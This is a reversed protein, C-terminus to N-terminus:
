GLAPAMTLLLCSGGANTLFGVASCSLYQFDRRIFADQSAGFDGWKRAARSTDISLSFKRLMKGNLSSQLRAMVTNIRVPLERGSALSIIPESGSGAPM